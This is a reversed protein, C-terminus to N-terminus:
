EDNQEEEKTRSFIKAIEKDMNIREKVDSVRLGRLLIPDAQWADGTPVHIVELPKTNAVMYIAYGDAIPFRITEGIYGNKSKTNTLVFDKLEKMYKEDHEQWNKWDDPYDYKIPSAFVKAM